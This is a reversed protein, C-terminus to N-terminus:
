ERIMHQALDRIAERTKPNDVSELCRALAAICGLAITGPKFGAAEMNVTIFKGLAMIRVTMEENSMADGSAQAKLKDVQEQVTM